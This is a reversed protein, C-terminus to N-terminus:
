GQRRFTQLCVLTGHPVGCPVALLLDAPNLSVWDECQLERLDHESSLLDSAQTPFKKGQAMRQLFSALDLAEAVLARIVARYHESVGGDMGGGSLRGECVQLVGYM